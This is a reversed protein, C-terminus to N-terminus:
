SCNNNFFILAALSMGITAGGWILVGRLARSAADMLRRAKLSFYQQLEGLTLTAFFFFFIMGCFLMIISFDTLPRCYGSTAHAFVLIADTRFAFRGILYLLLIFTFILGIVIWTEPRKLENFADKLDDIIWRLM